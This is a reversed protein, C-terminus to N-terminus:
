SSLPLFGHGCNCVELGILGDQCATRRAEDFAASLSHLCGILDQKRRLRAHAHGDLLRAADISSLVRSMTKSPECGGDFAQALHVAPGRAHAAFATEALELLQQEEDANASYLACIAPPM